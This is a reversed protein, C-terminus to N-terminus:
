LKEDGNDYFNKESKGRNMGEKKSEIDTAKEVLKSPVCRRTGDQSFLHM